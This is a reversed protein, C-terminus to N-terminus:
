WGAYHYDDADMHAWSRTRGPQRGNVNGNQGQGEGNAATMPQLGSGLLGTRRAGNVLNAKSVQREWMLNRRLSESLETSLMQRRTTRPTMPAAPLPLNYPHGLAIPTPAPRQIPATPQQPQYMSPAQDVSRRRSPGALAALKQQAVSRSLQIGNDPEDESDSEMEAGQPRGKLRHSSGSAQPPSAQATVPTIQTALPVAASSRSSMQNPLPLRGQRGLQTMDQSSYSTRYPHNPPFLEPDPNLLQSLLGSRTRNLNSYSRKPVKAFMDRQRRAEEAAERLKTEERKRKEKEKENLGDGSDESAWESEDSDTTYESSTSMVLPKRIAALDTAPPAPAAPPNATRHPPSPPRAKPVEQVQEPRPSPARQSSDRDDRTGNSSASGINFTTKKQETARRQTAQRQAQVRATGRATGTFRTVAGGRRVNPKSMNRRPPPATRESKANSSAVSSPSPEPPADSSQRSIAGHSGEPSGDDPSQSTQLFFRRDSPKLTEDLGRSMPKVHPLESSAELNAGPADPKLPTITSPRPPPQQVALAPRVPPLALHMPTPNASVASPVVHAHPHPTAPPTPHPTPNVVVVRPASPPTSPLQMTPLALVPRPQVLTDKPLPSAPGVSTLNPRPTGSPSGPVLTKRTPVTVKPFTHARAPVVFKGPLIDMIITGVRQSANSRTRPRAPMSATSLRRSATFPPLGEGHWSHRVHSEEHPM